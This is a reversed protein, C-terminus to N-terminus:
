HTFGRVVGFVGLGKEIVERQFAPPFLVGLPLMVALLAPIKGIPRGLKRELVTLLGHFTFYATPLGLGPRVPLIIALEHLVGSGVFVAMVGASEGFAKQVPRGVLRQMMQSYGVNWRKSWFDGIGRAELVNPFLTRVPFGAARLAGKLVRLAGFHFGISMPIFMILIQRWEMAWVCWAGLTGLAMLLLGLAVDGKWELDKRRTQFSGPDMGFWLFSFVAYRPLPLRQQSGAWEAYVLGKMGGLLVSCIGIMRLLPEYGRLVQDVGIMLAALWLWGALRRVGDLRVEALMPGAGIGMVVLVPIVWMM